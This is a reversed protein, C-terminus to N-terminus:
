LPARLRGALAEHRRLLYVQRVRFSALISRNRVRHIGLTFVRKAVRLSGPGLGTQECVRGLPIGHLYHM